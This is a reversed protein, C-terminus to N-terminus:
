RARVTVGEIFRRAEEALGKHLVTGRYSYGAMFAVGQMTPHLCYLTHSEMQLPETVGVITKAELDVHLATYKACPYGRSEEFQLDSQIKKFRSAPTDASIGAQILELFHEQSRPTELGFAVALAVLTANPEVGAQRFSVRSPTREHVKWAGSDPVVVDLLETSIRQSAEVPQAGCVPVALATLLAAIFTRM